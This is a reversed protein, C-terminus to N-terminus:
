KKIPPYVSGSTSTSTFSKNVPSLYYFFDNHFITALFSCIDSFIRESLVVRQPRYYVTRKTYEIIFAMNASCGARNGVIKHYFNPDVLEGSNWVRGWTDTASGLTYTAMTTTLNGTTQSNSYSVDGDYSMRMSITRTTCNTAGVRADLSLAIGTIVHKSTTDTSYGTMAYVSTNATQVSTSQCYNLDDITLDTGDGLSCTSWTAGQDAGTGAETQTDDTYCYALDHAMGYFFLIM